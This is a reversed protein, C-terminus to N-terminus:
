RFKSIGPNMGSMEPGRAVIVPPLALALEVMWVSEQRLRYGLKLALRLMARNERLVTATLTRLGQRAARAAVDRLLFGGIGRGKVDSRVILAVEAEGPAVLVRHLIGAIAANEDALWAIEGGGEEVDFARRLTPEDGLDLPGGFRLRVDDPALRRVFARVGRWDADNLKGERVTVPGLPPSAWLSRRPEAPGIGIAQWASAEGAM